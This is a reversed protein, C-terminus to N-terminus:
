EPLCSKGPRTATPCNSREWGRMEKRQARSLCHDVTRYGARNTKVGPFTRHRAPKAVRTGSIVISIVDTMEIAQLNYERIEGRRARDFQCREGRASDFFTMMRQQGPNCAVPIMDQLNVSSTRPSLISRRKAITARTKATMRNTTEAISATMVALRGSPLKILSECYTRTVLTSLSKGSFGARTKVTVSSRLPCAGNRRKGILAL